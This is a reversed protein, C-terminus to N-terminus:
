DREAFEKILFEKRLAQRGTEASDVRYGNDKLIKSLGKRIDEDDDIVLISPKTKEPKRKGVKKM